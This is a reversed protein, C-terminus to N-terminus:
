PTSFTFSGQQATPVASGKGRQHVRAVVQTAAATELAQRNFVWPGDPLPHAGEIEGQEVAVRLTRPGIGLLAAAETLNMWGQEQRTEPCYCPIQNWRRLSVVRERTWHNGHGTRLGNRNLVGAIVDDSCVRVLVRVAAVTDKSTQTSHQGRRRRPLRLETHTGGQWHICLLLEGAEADVDVVIERILTRVIRKKLRVDTNAAHWFRELDTALTAFDERTAPRELQRQSQQASIRQELGQVRALARNWRRELEDVVLRNDPDAADYQKWARQAQYRAAELDRQLAALVEDQQRVAEQSAMVAAEVAGPQVVRLVEGSIAADVAIGGFSICRPLGSDLHGLHCAYRLMDHDRGSYRVALKRGCRRCRLLGAVLAIGHKVAGPTARGRVNDTILRQVHEFQQWSIYGEHTEPILTLWQQQPKRRRGQRPHEGEYHWVGETKGYAYAGGYAPHTLLRYVTGYKPRRWRLEGGPHRVPLQLDHELFWLLTQRVSGVELFKQFVLHIAEQVRRDPAKELRQDETKLYGVPAAVLLEGRRAKERRAAAARQRLLDLEYENVSGQVGLLLRDQSLRPAYITEHDILLTDVVRCVEILRQWERSNRAFRSVERAAVAGVQGLCVQAVMREFGSRRVTGSASRGLDDDIVEIQHWGLHRLRERMAYQLRPSEANHMVQYPSSQRVYLVAKRELHHAHIKETM